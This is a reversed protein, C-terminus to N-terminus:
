KRAFVKVKLPKTPRMTGVLEFPIDEDEAMEWRYRSAALSMAYVMELLAFNNGLCVRPGAAFPIYATKPRAEVAQPAFRDPDFRDPDPWLAAYRQVLYPVLIIMSQPPITYGGLEDAEVNQRALLATPPYLRM